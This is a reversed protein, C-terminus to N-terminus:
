KNKTTDIKMSVILSDLKAANQKMMDLKVAMEKKAVKLSDQQTKKPEQPNLVLTGYSYNLTAALFLFLLKLCILKM